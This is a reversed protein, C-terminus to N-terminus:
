DWGSPRTESAILEVFDLMEDAIGFHATHPRQHIATPIGSNRRRDRRNKAKAAIRRCGPSQAQSLKIRDRLRRPARDHGRIKAM